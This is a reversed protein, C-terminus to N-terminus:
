VFNEMGCNTKGQALLKILDMRPLTYFKFFKPGANLERKRSGKGTKITAQLARRSYGGGGLRKVEKMM